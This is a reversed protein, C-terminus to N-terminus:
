YIKIRLSTEIAVKINQKAVKDNKEFQRLIITMTPINFKKKSFKSCYTMPHM